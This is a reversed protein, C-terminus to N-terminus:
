DPLNEKSKNFQEEMKENIESESMSDVDEDESSSKPPQKESKREVFNNQNKNKKEEAEGKKRSEAVKKLERDAELVSLYHGEPRAWWNTGDKNWQVYKKVFIENAKQYLASKQDKVDPFEEQTKNWYNDHEERFKQEQYIKEREEKVKRSLYKDLVALQTEDFALRDEDTLELPDIEKKTETVFELRGTAPNRRVKDPYRNVLQDLEDAQKAREQVEKFRAYPVSESKEQKEEGTVPKVDEASSAPLPKKDPSSEPQTGGIEEEYNKEFEKKVDQDTVDVEKPDIM